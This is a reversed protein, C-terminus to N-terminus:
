PSNVGITDNGQTILTPPSPLDIECYELEKDDVVKNIYLITSDQLQECYNIATEKLEISWNFRLDVQECYKIETEIISYVIDKFTFLQSVSSACFKLDSNFIIPVYNIPRFYNESLTCYSSKLNSQSVPIISYDITLDIINLCYNLKTEVLNFLYSYSPLQTILSSSNEENENKRLDDGSGVVAESNPRLEVPALKLKFFQDITGFGDCFIRCTFNTPPNGNKIGNYTVKGTEYVTFTGLVEQTSIDKLPIVAALIGDFDHNVDYWVNSIKVREVYLYKSVPTPRDFSLPMIYISWDVPRWSGRMTPRELRFDIGSRFDCAWFIYLSKKKTKKDFYMLNNYFRDSEDTPGICGNSCVVLTDKIKSITGTEEQERFLLERQQSTLPEDDGITFKYGDPIKHKIIKNRLIPIIITDDTNPIISNIEIALIEDPLNTNVYFFDSESGAILRVFGNQYITIKTGSFESFFEVGFQLGFLLNPFEITDPLLVKDFINFEYIGGEEADINISVIEAEANLDDEGDGGLSGLGGAKIKVFQQGSVFGNSVFYSITPFTLPSGLGFFKNNDFSLLGDPRISVKGFNAIEVVSGPLIKQNNVLIHSLFWEGRNFTDNDLVNVSSNLSIFDSVLEVSRDILKKSWLNAQSNPLDLKKKYIPKNPLGWEGDLGLELLYGDGSGQPLSLEYDGGGGGGGGSGGGGGGGGGDGGGDGDQFTYLSQLVEIKVTGITGYLGRSDKIWYTFSDNGVYDQNPTYSFTGQTLDAWVLTGNQPETWGDIIIQEDGKSGADNVLVGEAYEDVLLETNQLISYEDDLSIGFDDSWMKTFRMSEKPKFKIKPKKGKIKLASGSGGSSENDEGATFFLGSKIESDLFSVLKISDLRNATKDYLLNFFEGPKIILYDTKGFLETGNLVLKIISSNNENKIVVFSFNTISNGIFNIDISDEVRIKYATNGFEINTNTNSVINIAKNINPVPLYNDGLFTRLTKNEFRFYDTSTERLFIAADVDANPSNQRIALNGQNQQRIRINFKVHSPSLAPKLGGLFTYPQIEKIKQLTISNEKFFLKSWRGSFHESDIYDFFSSHLKGDIGIYLNQGLKHGGILGRAGSQFFNLQISGTQSQLLQKSQIKNLGAILFIHDLLQESSQEAFLSSSNLLTSYKSLQYPLVM